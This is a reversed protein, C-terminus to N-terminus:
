RGGRDCEAMISRRSTIGKALVSRGIMCLYPRVATRSFIEILSGLDVAQTVESQTVKESCIAMAFDVAGFWSWFTAIDLETEM